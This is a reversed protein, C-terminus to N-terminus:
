CVTGASEKVKIDQIEDTVELAFCRQGVADFLSTDGAMARRLQQLSEAQGELIRLQEREEASKFIFFKKKLPLIEEQISEVHGMVANYLCFLVATDTNEQRIEAGPLLKNNEDVNPEGNSKTGIVTVPVIGSSWNRYKAADFAPTFITEKLELQARQFQNRSLREDVQPSDKQTIAVLMTFHKKTLIKFISNINDASVAEKTLLTKFMSNESNYNEHLNESLSRASALIIAADSQNLYKSLTNVGSKSTISANDILEGAYDTITLTCKSEGNLRVHFKLCVFRTTATSGRFGSKDNIEFAKNIADALRTAEALREDESEISEIDFEDMSQNERSPMGANPMEAGSFSMMLQSIAGNVDQTDITSEDVESIANEQIEGTDTEIGRYLKVPLLDIKKDDPLKRGDGLLSQIIGKFFSTKGSGSGGVLSITIDRLPVPQATKKREFPM